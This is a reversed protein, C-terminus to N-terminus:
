VEEQAESEIQFVYKVCDMEFFFFMVFVSIKYVVIFICQFSIRHQNLHLMPFTDYCLYNLSYLLSLLLLLYLRYIDYISEFTLAYKYIDRSSHQVFHLYM